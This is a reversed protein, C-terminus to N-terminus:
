CTNTEKTAKLTTHLFDSGFGLDCLKEKINEESFKITKSRVNLEKTKLYNQPLKKVTPFVM